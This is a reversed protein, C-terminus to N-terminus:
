RPGGAGPTSLRIQPFRENASLRKAEAETTIISMTNMRTIISM